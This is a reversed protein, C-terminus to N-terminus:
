AVPVVFDNAMIKRRNGVPAIWSSVMIVRTSVIVPGEFVIIKTSIILVASISASLNRLSSGAKIILQM